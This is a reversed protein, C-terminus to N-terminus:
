TGNATTPKQIQSEVSWQVKELVDVVEAEVSVMDRHSGIVVVDVFQLVTQDNPWRFVACWFGVPQTCPLFQYKAVNDPISSQEAGPPAYLATTQTPYRSPTCSLPTLGSSAHATHFHGIGGAIVALLPQPGVPAGVSPSPCFHGHSRTEEEHQTARQHHRACVAVQSLFLTTARQVNLSESMFQIM